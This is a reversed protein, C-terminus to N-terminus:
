WDSGLSNGDNPTCANLWTQLSITNAVGRVSGDGMGVSMTGTHGSQTVYWNCAQASVGAQFAITQTPQDDFGAGGDNLQNIGDNWAGFTPSSWADGGNVLTDWAWAPLTCGANPPINPATSCNQFREAFFVTNASGDPVQATINGTGRPEFVEVNAAYNCSAYGDRQIFQGNMVGCGGYNGANLVSPDSPCLFTKIILAGVNNSVLGPGYPPTGPVVGPPTTDPSGVAAMNYADEQEIFPLLYFYITGTTGTPSAYNGYPGGGPYNVAAYQKSMSEVPPLVGYIDHFNHVALGIQKINNDCKTRNAAERVKQVAPLLLSILVAIIAIVVLLEILTFARKRFFTKISATM